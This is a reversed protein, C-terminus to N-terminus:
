SHKRSFITICFYSKGKCNFDHNWDPTETLNVTRREKEESHLLKVLLLSASAELHSVIGAKYLGPSCHCRIGSEFSRPLAPKDM